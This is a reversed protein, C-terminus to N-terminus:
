ATTSNTASYRTALAPCRTLGQNARVPRRNLLTQPPNKPSKPSASGMWLQLSPQLPLMLGATAALVFLFVPM